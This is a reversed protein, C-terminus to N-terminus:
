SRSFDKFRRLDSWFITQDELTRISHKLYRRVGEVLQDRYAENPLQHRHIAQIHSIGLKLGGQLETPQLESVVMQKDQDVAYNVERLCDKSSVSAPSLFYLLLEAGEIAIAIEDRWNAGASIGEDYWINFGQNRFWDIEPYIVDADAHAYCVFIYPADGRYAPFPPKM